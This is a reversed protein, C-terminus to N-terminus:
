QQDRRKKGDEMIYINKIILEIMNCLSYMKGLM